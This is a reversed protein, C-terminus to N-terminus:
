KITISFVIITGNECRSVKCGLHTLIRSAAYIDTLEPCNKIVTQGDALVTAAMIPLASNKAGQLKIEGSIRKGGNIVLKHLIDCGKKCLM